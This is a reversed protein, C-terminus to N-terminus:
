KSILGLCGILKLMHKDPGCCQLLLLQIQSCLHAIWSARTRRRAQHLYHVLLLAQSSIGDIRSCCVISAAGQWAATILDVTSTLKTGSSHANSTWAGCHQVHDVSLSQSVDPHCWCPVFYTLILSTSVTHLEHVLFASPDSEKTHPGDLISLQADM